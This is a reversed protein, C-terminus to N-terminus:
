SFDFSDDSITAYLVVVTDPKTTKIYNPLNGTFARLDIVDVEQTGLAIFPAVVNAFSDKIILTKKGDTNLMNDLEILARNSYNYAEYANENYYDNSGFVSTDYTVSFDGQTDLEISPITYRLSTEFKPYLLTFDEPQARALTVARGYGGLMGNKYTVVDYNDEDFLSLDFTYGYQNNLEAALLKAAWLGTEERWHPDTKFFLEQYQEESDITIHERLDLYPIDYQRLNACIVNANHEMMDAGNFLEENLKPTVKLTLPQVYLFDVNEEKCFEYFSILKDIYTQPIVRLRAQIWNNDGYEKLDKTDPMFDISAEYAKRLTLLMDYYPLRKATNVEMVDKIYAIINLYKTFSPKYTSINEESATKVTNSGKVGWQEEGWFYTDNRTSSNNLWMPNDAFALRTFCNDVGQRVLARAGLRAAVILLMTVLVGLLIYAIPYLIKKRQM